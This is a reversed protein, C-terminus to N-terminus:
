LNLNPTLISLSQPWNYAWYSSPNCGMRDLQPNLVTNFDGCLISHLAPDIQPLISSFFHEGPQRRNPGYVNVVQFPSSDSSALLQAIMFRGVDDTFSTALKLPKYLIAVGSSHASGPSSVVSYCQLNNGNDSESRVWSAFEDASTSHTEQPCIIDAKICNLWSFLTSRNNPARVNLTLISVSNPVM